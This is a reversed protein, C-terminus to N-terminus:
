LQNLTGCSPCKIAVNQVQPRKIKMVLVYDCKSCKIDKNGVGLVALVNEQPVLVTDQEGVLCVDFSPLVFSNSLLYAGKKLLVAKMVPEKRPKVPEQKEAQKQVQEAPQQQQVDVETEVIANEVRM